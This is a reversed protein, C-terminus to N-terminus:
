RQETGLLETLLEGRDAALKSFASSRRALVLSFVVSAGGLWATTAIHAVLVQADPTVPYALAVTAYAGIAAATWVATVRPRMLFAASLPLALFAHRLHSQAGGSHYALGALLVLDIAGIVGWPGRIGRTLAVVLTGLSYVTAVAFWATFGDGSQDPMAEHGLYAVPLLAVRLVAAASGRSFTM